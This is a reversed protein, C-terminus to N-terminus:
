GRNLVAQSSTQERPRRPEQGSPERVDGKDADKRRAVETRRPATVAILYAVGGVLGLVFGAAGLVAYGMQM